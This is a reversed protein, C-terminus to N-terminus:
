ETDEEYYDGLLAKDWADDESMKVYKSKDKACDECYPSVWGRSIYKAPKGCRICTKKSLEEYKPIIVHLIEDTSWADYWRLGGFKEKIQVIRYTKLAKRGGQKLLSQKIEKCIDIGFKKKWGPELADLETSNPIIFIKDLINEDIWRLVNYERLKRKNNLLKVSEYHFGYNTKDSEDTTKVYITINKSNNWFATMGLITFKDNSRWLLNYLSYEKTELHNKIILKRNEIDLDVTAGHGEIHTILKEKPEYRTATIGFELIAQKNLKYLKNNLKYAHHKGDWRNRIYLFPFRICLVTSKITRVFNKPFNVLNRLFKNRIYKM